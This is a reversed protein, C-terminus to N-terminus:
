PTQAKASADANAALLTQIKAELKKEDGPSYGVMSEVIRGERDILVGFPADRAPNFIAVVRTEEDLLIPYNIGYRRITPEVNAISEPGDMSIGLITLGQDKYTQHLKQLEPMEGLCPVCWTAWFNLFIVDKGLHDSLRVTRGDLARLSFDSAKAAGKEETPTATRPSCGAAFLCLSTLIFVTPRM